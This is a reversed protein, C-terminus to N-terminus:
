ACVVLIPNVFLFYLNTTEDLEWVESQLYQVYSSDSRANAFLDDFELSGKFISLLYNKLNRGIQRAGAQMFSLAKSVVNQDRSVEFSQLEDTKMLKYEFNTAAFKMKYFEIIKQYYKKPNSEKLDTLM